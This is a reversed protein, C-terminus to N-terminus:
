SAMLRDSIVIVMVFLLTGNLHNFARHYNQKGSPSFVTIGATMVLSFAAIVVAWGTTIHARDMYLVPVALLMVAFNIIWLFVIKELRRASARQILNPVPFQQYDSAHKLLILWFHPIQWLAFITMACWIEVAFMDGGAGTWGIFPPLMGCFVGAILGPFFRSKLPTYIGNYLLIGIGGLGSLKITYDSFYLVALGSSILMASLALAHGPRILGAPLPRHMTRGLLRDTKRDQFNNLVGGGCALLFVGATIMIISGDPRNNKLIFGFFTSLGILLSLPIKMLELRLRMIQLILRYAKSM